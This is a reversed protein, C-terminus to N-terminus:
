IEASFTLINVSLDPIFGDWDNPPTVEIAYMGAATNLMPTFM